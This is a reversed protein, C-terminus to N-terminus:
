KIHMVSEHFMCQSQGLLLVTPFSSVELWYASEAIWNWHFLDIYEFFINMQEIILKLVLCWKISEDYAMM